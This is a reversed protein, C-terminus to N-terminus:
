VASVRRQACSGRWARCNRSRVPSEGPQVGGAVKVFGQRDPLKARSAPFTVPTRVLSSLHLNYLLVDGDDSRLSVLEKAAGAPDSGPEGDTINLVIPPYSKRHGAVWPELIKRALQLAETMPTGGEAVPDFWVPFRVPVTVVGGAGDPIRKAREEVRLQHAALDWISVLEQGKLAGGFCPGVGARSGYGVVGVDFYNRPGEGFNKTCQIILDMLLKNIADAAANAKRVASDGAFPDGM